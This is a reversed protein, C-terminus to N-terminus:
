LECECFLFPNVHGFVHHLQSFMQHSIPGMIFYYNFSCSQLEGFSSVESKM